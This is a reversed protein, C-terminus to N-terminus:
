SKCLSYKRKSVSHEIALIVQAWQRLYEKDSDRVLQYTSGMMAILMNMLILTVIIMYVLFLIKAIYEHRTYQMSDYM